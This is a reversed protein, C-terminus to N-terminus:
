IFRNYVSAYKRNLIFLFLCSLLFKMLYFDYVRGSSAYGIYCFSIVGGGIGVYSLLDIYSMEGSYRLLDAYYIQLMHIVYFFAALVVIEFYKETFLNNSWNIVFEKFYFAIFIGLIFVM